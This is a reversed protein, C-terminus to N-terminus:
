RPVEVTFAATRVAGGAKVDLFLRYTGATPFTTGFAIDPGGTGTADTDADASGITDHDGVPHVHLYALDGSRLAVLHGFAGLYPELDTVPTGHRTVTMRLETEHGAVPTGSLTVAYGDGADATPVAAPLPAPEFAGAVALDAGLTISEASAAPRFDALVRYTGATLDVPVSWTGDTGLVPHVHQFTSLDRRVVVLHLDKTHTEVYSTLPTGDPREVVLGVPVRSGAPAQTSTLRLTYGAQSVALGPLTGDDHSSGHDDAMVDDAHPATTQRDEAVPGVARGVGVSAALVACLGAAYLGVTAAPRM